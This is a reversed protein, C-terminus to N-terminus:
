DRHSLGAIGLEVDYRWLSEDLCCMRKVDKHVGFPMGPCRATLVIM